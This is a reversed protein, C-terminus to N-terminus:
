ETVKKHFSFFVLSISIQLYYNQIIVDNQSFSTLTYTFNAQMIKDQLKLFDNFVASHYAFKMTEMIGFLNSGTINTLGGSCLQVLSCIYGSPCENRYATYPNGDIWLQNCM